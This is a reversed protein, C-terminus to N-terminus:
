HQPVVVASNSVEGRYRVENLLQCTTCCPCFAPLLLDGVCNGSINYGERVVSRALCPSVCLCNFCWNSSDFESRASALACPMCCLGYWFTGWNSFCSCIKYQFEVPTASRNAGWTYKVMGRQDVENLGQCAVCPYCCLGLAIDEPCSGQIHYGERIINRMAPATLCLLNFCWNSDDFNSRASAVACPKCFTGCLCNAGSGSFCSFTSFRWPELPLHAQMKVMQPQTSQYAMAEEQESSSLALDYDRSNQRRPGTGRKTEEEQRACAILSSRVGSKASPFTWVWSGACM